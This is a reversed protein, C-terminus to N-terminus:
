HYRGPYMEREVWMRSEVEKETTEWAKIIQLEHHRDPNWRIYGEDALERLAMKIQGPTRVAMRALEAIPPVGRYNYLIRLVKRPNDALM